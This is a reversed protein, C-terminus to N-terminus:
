KNSNPLISNRYWYTWRVLKDEKFVALGISESGPNSSEASNGATIGMDKQTNSSSSKENLFSNDSSVGGLIASPECTKCNLQNLFDAIKVYATYGTIETTEPVIEYYKAVLTEFVPKSNEIFYKSDCKSVIVGVDPRIQVNNALSYIENALGKEAFKESFVIVKCHSLNVQKSVYNNILSIASAVSSAEVSYIFTPAPESGSGGESSTPRTFQFHVKINNNEAPDIGIAVAYVFDDIDQDHNFGVTFFSFGIIVILIKAISAIKFNM